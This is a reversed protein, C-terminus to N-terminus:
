ESTIEEFEKIFKKIFAQQKPTFGDIYLNSRAEIGLIYDVSSQYIIALEKIIEVSPTRNNSEYAGVTRVHIGLKEAVDKQKLGRNRRLEKLRIGFDYIGDAIKDAM